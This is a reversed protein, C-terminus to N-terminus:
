VDRTRMLVVAAVAAVVMYGIFVSLGTLPALLQPAAPGMAAVAEDSVFVANLANFPLWRGVDPTFAGVASEIVFLWVLTVTIAVVQSRILAGLAVGFWATLVLGVIGYWVAQLTESGLDVGVDATLGAILLLMTVLVLGLVLFALAYLTGALLKGVLVRTRSPTIQLTRGITGHRFETTMSLLAVILVIISSGGVQDVFYGVQADTGQFEGVGAGPLMLSLGAGLLILGLGIATMVWTTRTSALKRAESSVLGMM